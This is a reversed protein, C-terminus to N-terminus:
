KKVVKRVTGDAQRQISVGKANNDVARGSLDYSNVISESSHVSSIGTAVGQSSLRFPAKLSGKMLSMSVTQDVDFLDGTVTDLIRFSVLEGQNAHVTIFLRGDICVGEGRCEDGVFAGVSYREPMTIGDLEAVMSMNDAFRSADYTWTSEPNLKRPANFRVSRSATLETEATWNLYKEAGSNNYYLYSQFPVLTTLTGTWAGGSYEAFGNEKSVLRDGESASTIVASVPHSLVYPNGIWTWAKQLRQPKDKLLIEGDVQIGAHDIDVATTANIKYAVGPQLGLDYLEGYYGYQPDNAMLATQSRVEDVYRNDTGDGLHAAYDEDTEIAGWLTKWQWGTTLTTPVGVNLEAGDPIVSFGTTGDYYSVILNGLGPYNPTITITYTGDANAHHEIDVFDEQLEQGTNTWIEFSNPDFEAGEPQPTLTLTYTQGVPMPNPLTEAVDFGSLGESVIIKFTREVTTRHQGGSADMAEAIYDIYTVAMTVTTEGVAKATAAVTFTAPTGNSTPASPTISVTAVSENSSTTSITIYTPSEPIFTINNEVLDSIDIDSGTYQVSINGGFNVDRAQIHNTFLKRNSSVGSGDDAFARVSFTGAATAIVRGNEVKGGNPNISIEYHYSKNTADEPLITIISNLYDTLDDGVNASQIGTVFEISEIPVNINVTVQQTAHVEFSPNGEANYTTTGVQVTMTTQGGKIPVWETFGAGVVVQQQAIYEENDSIWVVEDTHNTPNVTIANELESKLTEWDGKNVTITPTNVTISSAPQYIFVVIDKTGLAEYGRLQLQLVSGKEDINPALATLTNGTVSMYQNGPERITWIYDDDDVTTSEPQITVYDKLNIEDGVNMTIDGTNFSFDAVGQSVIITLEHTKTITTGNIYDPYTLTLTLTAEGAGIVSISIQGQRNLVRVVTNIKTQINLDYVEAEAPTTTFAAYVDSTINFSEGTYSYYLTTQSSPDFGTAWQHVTVTISTAVNPNSASRIILLTTGEGVAKVTNNATSVVDGEATSDPLEFIVDQSAGDPLVTILSKIYDTLDDGVNADISEKSIQISTAGQVVDIRLTIPEATRIVPNFSTGAMYDPYTLTFTLTSTGAQKVTVYWEGTRGDHQLAVVDRNSSTVNMQYIDKGFPKPTVMGIKSWQGTTSDFEGFIDGTIDIDSDFYTYQHSPRDAELEKAYDNVWVNITTYVDPNSVSRVIIDASGKKVAKITNNEITVADSTAAASLEYTVSKDTASAPLIEYCQKIFETLDDGVNCEFSDKLKTISTVPQVVRVTVSATATTYTYSDPQGYRTWRYSLTMTTEGVAVPTYVKAGTADTSISVIDTNATGYMQYDTTNAPTVNFAAELKAKLGDADGVNVTITEYGPNIDIATVHNHIYVGISTSFSGLNVIVGTSCYRVNGDAVAAENSTLINDASLSLYDQYLSNVSFVYELNNPRTANTPYYSVYSSVNIEADWNMYINTPQIGRVETVSLQVLNSTTGHRQGDFTITPSTLNYELGTTSNYMKFTIAKGNDEDSTTFNGPIRFVFYNYDGAEAGPAGWSDTNGLVIARVNGDVLAAIEYNALNGTLTTGTVLKAEVVTETSQGGPLPPDITFHTQAWGVAIALLAVTLSLLRKM